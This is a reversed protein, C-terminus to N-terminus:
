RQYMRRNVGTYAAENTRIRYTRTNHSSNDLTPIISSPEDERIINMYMHLTYHVTGGGGGEYEGLSAIARTSGNASM